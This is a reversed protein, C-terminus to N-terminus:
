QNLDSKNLKGLWNVFPKATVGHLILSVFVTCVVVLSIFHANAVEADIIIVCFVVSALGRPGFWGMFVRERSPIKTGIFSLFVPIMRVFTLSLLVYLFIRPTFLDFVAAIVTAGFLLWTLMALLEGIGEISLVLKHTGKQSLQGFLMGGTFAAIYGSGHLTQAVAFSAIALAGVTLQLWVESVWGRMACYKLLKAGIFAFSLGVAMGIGLEEVVLMLAEIVTVSGSQSSLAILLLLIPVSLGDNLGSEVNLGERIPEPVSRDSIVAKGLAADTAALMTGLIAAEVISLHSFLVAAFLTGLLIAGPLGILLMRAPISATKKLIRKNSNAADSFLILSLTLDALLRLVHTDSNGGLFGFYGLLYGGTVYIIPSSVYSNEIRKAILSYGFVVLALVGLQAYLQNLDM